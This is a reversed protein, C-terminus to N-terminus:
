CFWVCIIGLILLILVGILLWKKLRPNKYIKYLFNKFTEALMFIAMLMITIIFVNGSIWKLSLLLIALLIIGAYIRTALKLGKYFEAVRKM